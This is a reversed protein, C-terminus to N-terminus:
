VKQRGDAIAFARADTIELQFSRPKMVVGRRFLNFHLQRALEGAAAGIKRSSDAVQVAAPGEPLGEEIGIVV